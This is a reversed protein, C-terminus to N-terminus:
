TGPGCTWGFSVTGQGITSTNDDSVFILDGPPCTGTPIIGSCPINNLTGPTSGPTVSTSCNIFNTDTGLGVVVDGSSIPREIDLSVSGTCNDLGVFSNNTCTASGGLYTVNVGIKTPSSTPTATPTDTATATATPTATPTPTRTVTATPTGTTTPAATPTGTATRTPTATRSASATPTATRTATSTPTGSSTATPTATATATSTPTATATSTPTPTPTKKVKKAKGGGRLTVVLSPDNANSAIVLNAVRLGAGAPTFTIAVDCKGGAALQGLCNQAASFERTSTQISSIVIPVDQKKNRSDILALNKPKSASGLKVTGFNIARASAKLEAPLPTPSSTPAATSTPTATPTITATATATPTQTATATVTGTATPTASSTSTPTASSTSTGTATPTPAPTAVVPTGGRSVFLAYPSSSLQTNSGSIAALPSVDGRSGPPYVTVSGVAGSLGRNSAFINGQADLALGLPSLATSGGSITAVPAVNGTDGAAFMLIGPTNGQPGESPVFIDGGGDVAIGWENGSLGTSSGTIILSPAADGTSGAPYATISPQGSSGSNLVYLNGSTDLTIATPQDLHTNAGQIITMPAAGGNSGAAFIQVSPTVSQANNVVYINASSDLAIGAPGTLSPASITNSPAADGNSAAPYVTVTGSTSNAVYINGAADAAVGEPGNIGTDPGAIRLSPALNGDGTLPFETISEAGPDAVLLMPQQAPTFSENAGSATNGSDPIGGIAYISGDAIVSELAWRATPMSPEASWLNTVPDYVEVTSLPTNSGDLGGIAYLLGDYMVVALGTRATPMSARTTWNNAAPDYAEVTALAFTTSTSGGVAYIVGNIAVAGLGSRATPMPAMSTWANTAPNYVELAGTMGAPTYGGVVYFEGDAAVGAANDRATPMSPLSSWTDATPNYATLSNIIVCCNTGGAAYLTNNVVGYASSTQISPRPTKTIWSNAVPNYAQVTTLHGGLAPNYGGAVIITGNVFGAASSWRATPMPADAVWAGQAFIRAVILGSILIVSAVIALLTVLGHQLLGRDSGLARFGASTSAGTAARAIRLKALKRTRLARSIAALVRGHGEDM